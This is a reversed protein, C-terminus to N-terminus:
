YGAPLLIAFEATVAQVACQLNYGGIPILVPDGEDPDPSDLDATGDIDMFGLIQYDGAPLDQGLDYQRTVDPNTIDVDDFHFDIVASTGPKPGAVTVDTSRYVAGWVPGRLPAKLNPSGTVTSSAAFTLVFRGVDAQEEPPCAEPFVGANEPIEVRGLLPVFDVDELFFAPSEVYYAIQFVGQKGQAIVEVIGGGEPDEYRFPATWSRSSGPAAAEQANMNDVLRLVNQQFQEGAIYSAPAKAVPVRRGDVTVMEFGVDVMELAYQPTVTLRLWTHPQLEFDRFNQEAGQGIGYARRSFFDFEDRGLTFWVTGGVTEWPQGTRAPTNVEGPSLSTEPNQNAVRLTRRGTEDLAATVVLAGGNASRVKYDLSWPSWPAETEAAFAAKVADIFVAGMQLSMPVRTILRPERDEANDPPTLEFSAVLQGATSGDETVTLEIGPGLAYHDHLTGAAAEEGFLPGVFALFDAETVEWELAVSVFEIPQSSPRLSAPAEECLPSAPPAAPAPCGGVVFATGVLLVAARLSSGPSAEPAHAARPVRLSM